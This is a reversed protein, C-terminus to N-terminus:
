QSLHFVLIIYLRALYGMASLQGGVHNTIFIGCIWYVQQNFNFIATISHDYIAFGM